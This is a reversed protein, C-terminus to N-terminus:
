EGGIHKTAETCPNRPVSEAWESGDYVAPFYVRNRTWLTFSSGNSGGYGPHFKRDLEDASLLTPEKDYENENTVLVVVEVDEFTEDHEKMAKTIEEKWSTLYDEM